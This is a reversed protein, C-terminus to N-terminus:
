EIKEEVTKSTTDVEIASEVQHCDRREYVLVYAENSVIRARDVESTVETVSSDNFDYWARTGRNRAVATDAVFKTWIVSAFACHGFGMGGAVVIRRCDIAQPSPLVQRALAAGCGVM